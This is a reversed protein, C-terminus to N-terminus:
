CADLSRRRSGNWKKLVNSTLVGNNLALARVGLRTAGRRMRSRALAGSPRIPVWGFIRKQQRATEGGGTRLCEKRPTLTDFLLAKMQPWFSGALCRRRRKTNRINVGMIEAHNQKPISFLVKSRFAAVPIIGVRPVLASKSRAAAANIAPAAAHRAQSAPPAAATKVCVAPAAFAAALM